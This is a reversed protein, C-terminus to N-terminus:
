GAGTLQQLFPALTSESFEGLGDLVKPKKFKLMDTKDPTSPGALFTYQVPLPKGGRYEPLKRLEMEISQRWAKNGKGYFLIVGDCRALMDEHAKRLEAADGDFAPTESEIGREGLLMRLPDTADGDEKDCVIYVLKPGSDAVPVPAPAAVKASTSAAMAAAQRAAEEAAAKAAAAKAATADEIKKLADLTATQLAQLDGTILEAGAVQEPDHRLSEIFMYELPSDSRTAEPLWILRKLPVQQSHALALEHQLMVVSKDSPGDPVKGYKAGILHVSVECKALLKQAEANHADEDAPLKTEPLVTYGQQLLADVLKQREERRDFSCEAVYVKPKASNQADEIKELAAHMASKLSEVDGAILDAGAQMPDKRLFEIFQQQEPIDSCTEEPLWILRSFASQACRMIAAQNQLEVFRDPQGEPGPGYDAGVLHIAIQCRALIKQVESLYADAETPLKSDPLIQYGHRKLDSLLAERIDRRDYTCEALYVVPKPRATQPPGELQKILQAIDSALDAIKLKYKSFDDQLSPDLERPKREQVVYFDYGLANKMAEPLPDLSEPPFLVVKVIRSKNGVVIGGTAKACFEQAERTCWESQVYRPSVVSILLATKPFQQVIEDSFIDNGCLSPDFWIKAKRGLRRNLYMALTEHFESVWGQKDRQTFENDLHSYSIFLQNEFEM